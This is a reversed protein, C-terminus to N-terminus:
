HGAVDSDSTGPMPPVGLMSMWCDQPHVLIIIIFFVQTWLLIVEYLKIEPLITIRRSLEKKMAAGWLLNYRQMTPVKLNTEIDCVLAILKGCEVLEVVHWFLVCQSLVALCKHTLIYYSLVTVKQCETPNISAKWFLVTHIKFISFALKELTPIGLFTFKIPLM